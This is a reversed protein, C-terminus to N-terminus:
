GGHYAEVKFTRFGLSASNNGGPFVRFRWRGSGLNPWVMIVAHTQTNGITNRLFTHGPSAVVEAGPTCPSSGSGSVCTAVMDIHIFDGANPTDVEATFHGIVAGRCDKNFVVSAAAPNNILTTDDPPVLAPTRTDYGARCFDTPAGTVAPQVDRPTPRQHVAQAWAGSSLSVILSTAMGALLCLTKRDGGMIDEV